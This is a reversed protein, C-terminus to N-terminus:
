RKILPVFTFHGVSMAIIAAVWIAVSLVPNSGFHKPGPPALFVAVLLPLLAIMSKSWPVGIKRGCTVCTAPITPGLYARRFVSIGPKGCHPCAYM